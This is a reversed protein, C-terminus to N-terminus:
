AEPDAFRPSRKQFNAAVAELQNSSGLLDLQLETELLMAAAVTLAPADNVLRKGHRIAMPNKTAIQQALAVAEALPDDCVRTLLGLEVAEPAPVRRGTWILEKAVDPGVLRLLTQTISMDPILGWKIEMVSLKVDPAALRIDAALAIQCGGGYAVGRIAAIVPVPVEQWVWACRQAVNAPTEAPRELLLNRVQPGGVMVAKFDLGACFSPGDGTLVVARVTPDARLQLGAEILAQFMPADLGNHKDARTMRVVAVAPTEPPREIAVRDHLETTTM